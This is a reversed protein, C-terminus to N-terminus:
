APGIAAYGNNLVMVGRELATATFFVGHEDHWLATRLTEGPMFPATFRVQMSKLRQAVYGCCSKLIAHQAIGMTCRGHLIPREFGVRRAVAPDVHLPNLDGCLRYLLAQQPLSPLDCILDPTRTPIAVPKDIPGTPGDFGGDGRAVSASRVTALLTGGAETRVEKTSYLYAGKEKGRDIIGTIVTRAHITGAVPLPAHIEFSEEAHLVRPWDVQYQPDKLWFGPYGLVLSMCPVAELGQEYVYKLQDRDIPDAGIGISLAYLLTDEVRFRTEREDVVKGLLQTYDIM